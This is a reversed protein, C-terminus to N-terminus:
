ESAEVKGSEDSELYMPYHTLWPWHNVVMKWVEGLEDESIREMSISQDDQLGTARARKRTDEDAQWHDPFEDIILVLYSEGELLFGEAFQMKTGAVLGMHKDGEISGAYTRKAIRSEARNPLHVKYRFGGVTFEYKQANWPAIEGSVIKLQEDTAKM